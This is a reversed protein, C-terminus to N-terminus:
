LGLSLVTLSAAFQARSANKAATALRRLEAARLCRDYKPMPADPESGLQYVPTWHAGTPRWSCVRAKGQKRLDGVYRLGNKRSLSMAASIEAGSHPLELLKTALALQREYLTPIPAVDHRLKDPLDGLKYLATATRRGQNVHDAIYVRKNSPDRLDKLYMKVVCMSLHITAALGYPSMPQKVLLALIRNKQRMGRETVRAPM